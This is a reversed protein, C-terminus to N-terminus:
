APQAIRLNNGFPDRIGFDIGYDQKTVEQTVEVAQAVLSDFTAQADDTYFFVTGASAGKSVLERVTDTTTPDMMPNGPQELLIQRGKDGPVNVTLWRMFGFDVDTHVELGLTGVYFALAEDQDLVYISSIAISTLM